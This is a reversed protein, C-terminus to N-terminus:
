AARRVLPVERLFERMGIGLHSHTLTTSQARSNYQGGGVWVGRFHMYARAQVRECAHMHVIACSGLLRSADKGSSAASTARGGRNGGSAKKLETM